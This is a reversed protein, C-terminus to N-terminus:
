RAALSSPTAGAGGAPSAMATSGCSFACAAGRGHGREVDRPQEVLRGARDALDTKAVVVRGESGVDLQGPRDVGVKAELARVAPDESRPSSRADSRRVQERQASGNTSSTRIGISSSNRGVTSGIVPAGIWGRHPLVGIDRVDVLMVLDLEIRDEVVLERQGLREEGEATGVTGPEARGTAFPEVLSHMGVALLLDVGAEGAQRRQESVAVLGLASARRIPDTRSYQPTGTKM